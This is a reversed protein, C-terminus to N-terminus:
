HRQRRAADRGAQDLVVQEQVLVDEGLRIRLSVLTQREGAERRAELQFGHFQARAGGWTLAQEILSAATVRLMAAEADDLHRLAPRQLCALAPAPFLPQAYVPAPAM